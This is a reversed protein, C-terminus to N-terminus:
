PAMVLSTFEGGAMRKVFKQIRKSDVKNLREVQKALGFDTEGLIENEALFENRELMDDFGLAWGRALRKKIAEIQEDDILTNQLEKFELEIKEKVKELNKKLTHAILIYSGEKAYSNLASGLGYVYANKERLERFLKSSMGGLLYEDLVLLTYYDPHFVSAADFSYFLISSEMSRKLKTKSHKLRSVRKVSKLRAPPRKVTKQDKFANLVDAELKEYPRGSVVSLVMRDPRYYRRYFRELDAVKFGKVKKNEGGISHGLDRKFNKKYLYELGETEHDDKDELLEQLIVKKELMLDNEKFVPSLFLSLFKPLFRPLLESPCDLEFCVYEKYTYANVQAGEKELEKVLENSGEDKFLMHEIVHAIGEQDESEFISGALFYLNACASEMGKFQHFLSVAGNDFLSRRVPGKEFSDLKKTEILSAPM